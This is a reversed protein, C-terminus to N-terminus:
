YIVYDYLYIRFRKFCDFLDFLEFLTNCVDCELHSERSVGISLPNSTVIV